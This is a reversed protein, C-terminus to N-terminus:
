TVAVVDALPLGHRGVKNSDSSAIGDFQLVFALVGDVASRVDCATHPLNIEDFFLLFIGLHMDMTPATSVVVFVIEAMAYKVAGAGRPPALGLAATHLTM